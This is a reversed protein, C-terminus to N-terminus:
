RIDANLNLSRRKRSLANGWAPILGRRRREIGKPYQLDVRAWIYLGSNRHQRYLFCKAFASRRRSVRICASQSRTTLTCLDTDANMLTHGREFESEPAEPFPRQGLSTHPRAKPARNGQCIAPRGEGLHIFRFESTPSLSFVKRVRLSASQRPHVSISIEHDAHM